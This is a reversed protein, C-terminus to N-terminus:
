AMFYQRLTDRRGAWTVNWRWSHSAMDCLECRMNRDHQVPSNDGMRTSWYPVFNEGDMRWTRATVDILRTDHREYRGMAKENVYDCIVPDDDGFYQILGNINMDANYCDELVHWGMRLYGEGLTWYADTVRNMAWEFDRPGYKGDAVNNKVEWAHLDPM